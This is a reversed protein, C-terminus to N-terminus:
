TIPVIIQGYIYTSPSIGSDSTLTLVNDQANLRIGSQSGWPSTHARRAISKGFTSAFDSVLIIGTQSATNATVGIVSILMFSGEIAYYCNGTGFTFNSPSFNTVAKRNCQITGSAM